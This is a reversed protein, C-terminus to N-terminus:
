LGDRRVNYGFINKLTKRTQDVANAVEEIDSYNMAHKVKGILEYLRQSNEESEANLGSEYIDKLERRVEYMEKVLQYSM